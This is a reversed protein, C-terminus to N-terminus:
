FNIRKSRQSGTSHISRTGKEKIAIRLMADYDSRCTIDHSLTYERFLTATRLSKLMTHAALMTVFVIKKDKSKPVRLQTNAVLYRYETRLLSSGGQHDIVAIKFLKPVDTSTLLIEDDRAQEVEKM